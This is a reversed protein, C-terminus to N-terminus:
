FIGQFSGFLLKARLFIVGQMKLILPVNITLIFVQMTALTKEAALQLNDRTRHLWATLLATFLDGTGVFSAAL